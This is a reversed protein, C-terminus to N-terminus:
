SVKAHLNRSALESIVTEKDTEETWPTPLIHSGFIRAFHDDTEGDVFHTTMWRGDQLVVKIERNEGTWGFSVYSV